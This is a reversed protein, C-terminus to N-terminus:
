WTVSFKLALSDREVILLFLRLFTVILVVTCACALAYRDLLYAPVAGKPVVDERKNTTEHEEHVRIKKRM